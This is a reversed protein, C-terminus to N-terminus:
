ARPTNQEELVERVIQKLESRLGPPLGDGFDLTRTPFPIDIGAEEFRKKIRRNMERGALWQKSPLTKIRCKIVVASDALRDVGLMDLPAAIASRYPEEQMMEAAIQKLAEVAQDTDTKYNVSVEFVYYSFERTMNSLSAIAGNPFIHVTGNEGRLVTTRLNLEEVLGSTGNIVAIDNIRLQNEMLLFLGAIVDKVVSQAGFGIAVGIVGASALLPGIDFNMEELIMIIAILWILTVIAKKAVGSITQSRKELEFDTAGGSKMMMRVSYVSLGRILRRLILTALYAAILISLIRLGNFVYPLFYELNFQFKTPM